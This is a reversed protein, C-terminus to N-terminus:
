AHVWVRLKKKAAKAPEFPRSMMKARNADPLTQGQSKALKLALKEPSSPAPGQRLGPGQCYTRPVDVYGFSVYVDYM